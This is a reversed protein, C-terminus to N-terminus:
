ESLKERGFAEPLLEELRFVRIEEPSKALLILFDPGCFEALVQRCIGCPPAFDTVVGDRGGVVAIAQFDRKGESVAKVLATREACIAAGYSANEVNCGTFVEGDATLLAAGVHFHSYPVYAKPLMAWAAEVLARQNM